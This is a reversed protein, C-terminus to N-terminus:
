GNPAEMEAAAANLAAALTRLAAPTSFAISLRGFWEESDKGPESCLEMCDPADPYPRILLYGDGLWVRRYTEIM